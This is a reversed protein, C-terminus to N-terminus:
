VSFCAHLTVAATGFDREWVCVSEDKGASRRQRPKGISIPPTTPDESCIRICFAPTSAVYFNNCSSYLSHRHSISSCPNVRREASSGAIREQDRQLSTTVLIIIFDHDDASCALRRRGRM